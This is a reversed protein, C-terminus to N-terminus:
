CLFGLLERLSLLFSSLKLRSDTFKARTYVLVPVFFALKLDDAVFELTLELSGGLDVVSELEM